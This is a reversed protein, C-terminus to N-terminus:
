GVFSSRRGPDQLCRPVALLPSQVCGLLVVVALVGTVAEAESLLVWLLMLLFNFYPSAHLGQSSLCHLLLSFSIPIRLHAPM